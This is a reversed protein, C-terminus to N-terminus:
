TFTREKGAEAGKRKEELRARLTEIEKRLAGAADDRRGLLHVLRHLATRCLRDLDLAKRFWSEAEKSDGRHFAAEGKLACYEADPEGGIRQLYVEGAREAAAVDPAKGPEPFTLLIYATKLHPRPDARDLDAAQRHLALAEAYKMQEAKVLAMNYRHVGTAPDIRILEGLVKEAKDYYDLRQYAAAVHTLVVTRLRSPVPVSPDKLAEEALALAGEFDKAALHESSGPADLFARGRHLLGFLRFQYHQWPQLGEYGELGALGKTIREVADAGEGRLERMMGDVVWLGPFASDVKAARQLADFVEKSRAEAAERDAPFATRALTFALGFWATFTESPSADSPLGDAAARYDAVALQLHKADLSLGHRIVNGEARGLLRAVDERGLPSTKAPSPAPAPEQALCPRVVAWPLAALALAALRPVPKV